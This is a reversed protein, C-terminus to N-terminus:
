DKNKAQYETVIEELAPTIIAQLSVDNDLAIQKLQKILKQSVRVGLARKDTITAM